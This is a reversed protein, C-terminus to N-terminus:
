YLMMVRLVAHGGEIFKVKKKCKIEVAADKKVGFKEDLNTTFVDVHSIHVLINDLSHMIMLSVELKPIRKRVNM